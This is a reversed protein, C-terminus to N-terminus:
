EGSTDDLRYRLRAGMGEGEADLRDSGPGSVEEVEADQALAAGVSRDALEPADRLLSRSLLLTDVRMGRLAEATADRGLVGRGGSRALDIVENVLGEQFRQNLAGAMGSVAERMETVSMDLHLQPAAQSRGALRAPLHAEIRSIAESTGGIVVFGDHAVLDDLKEAAAKWMREAAEELVRQAQDTATEGRVGSRRGGARRAGVDSLDGLEQDAILSQEETMQGGVLHFLRARRRDASVVAIPRLRKLGRIYPAARIGNEWRVLTPMPVPLSEHHVLGEPTAFGVWGRGKMFGEDQLEAELHAMAARFGDDEGDGNAIRRAEQAVESDLRTRWARRLAPDSQDVDLYISLVRQDRLDRYLRVLEARDLM